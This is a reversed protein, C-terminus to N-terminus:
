WFYHEPFILKLAIPKCDTYSRVFHKTNFYFKQGPSFSVPNNYNIYPHFRYETTSNRNRRIDQASTTYDSSILENVSGAAVVEHQVIKTVQDGSGDALNGHVAPVFFLFPLIISLSFRM